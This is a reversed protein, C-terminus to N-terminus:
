TQSTTSRFGANHKIQKLYNVASVKVFHMRPLGEPSVDAPPIPSLLLFNEFILLM